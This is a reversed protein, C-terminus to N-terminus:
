LVLELGQLEIVGSWDHNEAEIVAHTQAALEQVESLRHAPALDARSEFRAKLGALRERTRESREGHMRYQRQDRIGALAAGFGPLAIALFVLLHRWLLEEPKWLAHLLGVVVTVGFLAFISWTVRAHERQFRAAAERHYRIQEDIWTEVLLRRIEESSSQEVVVAPRQRWAESFARQYWPKLAEDSVVADTERGDTAGTLTVFLASRFAEALSRYGLWRSQLRLHKGVYVVALLTLLFAVELLVLKSSGGFQSQFAVTTVALAALLYLADGLRRYWRQYYLALSDARILHPLGWGAVAEVSHAVQGVDSVGLRARQERLQLQFERDDARCRNYAVLRRYADLTSTLERWFKSDRPDDDHPAREPDTTRSTPVVLVAVHHERAYAVIEATGGRGKARDGDWLAILLDSHEVIAHGAAEYAATRSEVADMQTRRTAGRLLEDFEEPTKFDKRYEAPNLPLMAHLEVNERGFIDIAEALVLRDAGEALASLIVFSVPTEGESHFRARLESLRDRVCRM